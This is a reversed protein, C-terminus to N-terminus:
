HQLSLIRAEALEFLDRCHFKGRSLEVAMEFLAKAEVL